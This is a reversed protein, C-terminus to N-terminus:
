FDIQASLKVFRPTLVSQPALWPGNVQFTQNRTLVADSNLVNFIDIGAHTRTRGYRLVKAFRLNLENVRDGWVEGPKVLDIAVTSGAVAPPRGLAAAVAAVPANFIARLPAGQDSRLTAAVLVDLKPVTYSALGTVKTIFGPDNRCNPNTPSTLQNTLEPIQARVDCVDQVTKGTNIGGQLTLGQASRASFNILVGNYMQRQGGFNDASTISNSPARAFGAATVNYLGNVVYNGGGPLRSDAPATFAFETFDAATLSLNDTTTFHTLWRRFYGVEVSM